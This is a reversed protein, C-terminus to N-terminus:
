LLYHLVVAVAVVEVVVSLLEMEVQHLGDEVVAQEL